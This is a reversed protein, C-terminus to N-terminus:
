TNLARLYDAAPQADPETFQELFNLIHRGSEDKLQPFLEVTEGILSDFPESPSPSNRVLRPSKGNHAPIPTHEQEPKNPQTRAPEPQETQALEEPTPPYMRDPKPYRKGYRDVAVGAQLIETTRDAEGRHIEPLSALLLRLERIAALRRDHREDDIDTLQILHTVIQDAALEGILDTRFQEFDHIYAHVTSVARDMRRAIQRMTLGEQRLQQAQLISDRRAADPYHPFSM